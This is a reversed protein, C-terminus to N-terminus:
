LFLAYENYLLLILVFSMFFNIKLNGIIGDWPFSSVNQCVEDM